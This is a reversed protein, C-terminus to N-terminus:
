KEIAHTVQDFASLAPKTFVGADTFKLLGSFNFEFAGKYEDGMWTYWYFASVGLQRHNAALLPLLARLNRAQGLETTEFDFLKRTQGLSSPWGGEGVIIPKRADGAQRMTARVQKLITIVGTPYKTYPHADVVDFLKRAGRIRYIADLDRSIFNPIGALVVKAGSDARKVATHAVGLLAVFSRAFPQTPWFDIIDPENWVEWMRIPRRPLNPHLSWFTGTPGYRRILTTLYEGYPGDDLPGKLCTVEKPNCSRPAADWPPVYEVIPLVSMGRGASLLVIQDTTGFDTPVGGAGSGFQATQSPPVESWSQYPQAAAWSFPVRVSQVGDARMTYFESPMAAGDQPTLMPGDVNMGVFGRPVPTGPLSRAAAPGALAISLTAAAALAAPRRHM